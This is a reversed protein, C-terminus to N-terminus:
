VMISACTCRSVPLGQGSDCGFLHLLWGGVSGVVEEDRVVIGVPGSLVVRGGERIVGRRVIAERFNTRM